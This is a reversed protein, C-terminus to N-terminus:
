EGTEPIEPLITGRNAEPVDVDNKKAMIRWAEPSALVSLDALDEQISSIEKTLDALTNAFLMLLKDWAKDMTLRKETM